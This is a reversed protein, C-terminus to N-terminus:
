SRPSKAGTTYVPLIDHGSCRSAWLVFYKGGMDEGPSRMTPDQFVLAMSYWPKPVAEPTVQILRHPPQTLNVDLLGQLTM